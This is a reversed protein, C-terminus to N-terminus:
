DPSLQELLTRARDGDTTLRVVLSRPGSREVRSSQAILREAPAGERDLAEQWGRLVRELRDAGGTGGTTLLLDLRLAGLEVDAVLSATALESLVSALRPYPALSQVLAAPRVVVGLLGDSPPLFPAESPLHDLRKRMSEVELPTAMAMVGQGTVVLLSPASRLLKGQREFVLRGPATSPSRTWDGGLASPDFSSFDGRAVLVADLRDGSPVGRTGIWVLEGRLRLLDLLSAREGQVRRRLPESLPALAASAPAGRLKGLDIRAVLDLGSPLLEEPRLAARSPPTPASSAPPRSSSCGALLASLAGLVQRRSTM